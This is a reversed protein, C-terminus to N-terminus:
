STHRNQKQRNHTTSPALRRRGDASHLCFPFTSGHHKTHFLGKKRAHRRHQSKKHRSPRTTQRTHRLVKRRIPRRRTEHQPADRSLPQGDHRRWRRTALGPVVRRLPRKQGDRFSRRGTAATPSRPVSTSTLPSPRQSTTRREAKSLLPHSLRHRDPSRAVCPQAEGVPSAASAWRVCPPPCLLLPICRRQM